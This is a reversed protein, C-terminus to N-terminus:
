SFVEQALLSLLAARRPIDAIIIHEDVAHAGDGDVGLGDLTPIGLAATFSGDSGGGTDGEGLEQGLSEAVRRALQFLRASEPTRELPPRNIGGTIVIRCRPDRPQLRLIRRAIRRGDPLRAFRFDIEAEASEPVMNVAAGGRVTGVSVTIGRQYNTMGQLAIVQRSLELIANAGKAHDIGAHSSIGAVRMHFTGVGKRFTKAKGGPLPPELCFVARCGRAVRELLPLGASTGIEEDPTFFFVVDGNPRVQRNHLADCVLLCLLIGCKMDFIGPGHAKGDKIVFPRERVTGRPWVTDLHGLFLVPAGPAGSRWVAQLASGRGPCPLIEVDIDRRRFEGSLSLALANVGAADLSHSEMEVLRQLLALSADLNRQFVSLLDLAATMLMGSHTVTHVLILM